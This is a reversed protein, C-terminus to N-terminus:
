NDLKAVTNMLDDTSQDLPKAILDKIYGLKRRVPIWVAGDKKSFLQAIDKQQLIKLVPDVFQKEATDLGRYLATQSRGGLSQIFLKRLITLLVKQGTTLKEVNRISANTNITNEFYSVETDIFFKEPLDNGSYNGFLRNIVCNKFYPSKEPFDPYYELEEFYCDQFKLGNLNEFGGSIEFNDPQFFVGDVVIEFPISIRREISFAILDACLINQDISSPLISLLSKLVSSDFKTDLKRSAIAIAHNGITKTAQSFADMLDFDSVAKVPDSIFDILEGSRYVSVMEGDIFKRTDEEFEHIVLGPLRHLILWAQDDPEFGCIHTYARKLDDVRLPGLGDESPDQM